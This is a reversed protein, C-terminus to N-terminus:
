QEPSRIAEQKLCTEYYHIQKNNKSRMLYSKMQKYCSPIYIADETTM